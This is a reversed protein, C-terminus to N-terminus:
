LVHTIHHHSEDTAAAKVVNLAADHANWCCATNRSTLAKGGAAAAAVATSMGRGLVAADQWLLGWVKCAEQVAWRAASGVFSFVVVFADRLHDGLDASPPVRRTVFRERRLRRATDPLLRSDQALTLLLASAESEQETIRLFRSAHRWPPRRAHLRTMEHKVLALGSNISSPHL